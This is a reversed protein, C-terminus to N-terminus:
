EHVGEEHSTCLSASISWPDIPTRAFDDLWRAVGPLETPVDPARAAACVTAPDPIDSERLPAPEPDIPPWAPRGTDLHYSRALRRLEDGGTDTNLSAVDATLRQELDRLVERAWHVDGLPVKTKSQRAWLVSQAWRSEITDADADKAVGLLLFPGVRDRKLPALEVGSPKEKSV